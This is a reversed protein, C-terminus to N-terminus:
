QPPVPPRPYGFPSTQAGPKSTQYYERMVEERSRTSKPEPILGPYTLSQQYRGMSTHEASTGARRSQRYEQLVQERSQSFDVRPEPVAGPYLQWAPLNMDNASYAAPSRAQASCILGACSLLVALYKNM